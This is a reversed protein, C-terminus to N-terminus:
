VNEVYDLSIWGNSIKGWGDKEDLLVHVSGKRVQAKIAYNTGAGARVNLVNATVKVKNSKASIAKDIAALTLPGAIGDEDLGNKRQFNRVADATVSGYDGDAGADGCSFGLKILKEQLEKVKSGTMGGSLVTTTTFNSTNSSNTTVTNSGGFTTRPSEAQGYWFSKTTRTDIHTFYGDSASEYLGIGRVGISEAYKAVERPSIGSVVIDAADGKSHRSGTAGGIRKNHTPCRYGSTITIPKGFHERIKQLHGVLTENILTQSCCGNGHCDFENSNFNSSLKVASGKTCTKYGMVSEGDKNKSKAYKDYYKQGYSARKNQVAVSQDYPCEFKLLVANSAEKVSKATKLITLVSKYSTSLEKYLFELATELDGISKNKSKAYEYYARKRSHWTWQPLSYGFGDNIFQEKTYTGNDVARTYEDDTMGLKTNGTNELNKSNLGSEAYLNGMLSAVGYDNLGKSKLFNWVQEEVNKGILNM